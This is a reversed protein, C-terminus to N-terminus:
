NTVRFPFRVFSHFSSLNMMAKNTTVFIRARRHVDARDSVAGCEVCIKRGGNIQEIVLRYATSFNGVSKLGGQSPFVVKVLSRGTEGCVKTHSAIKTKSGTKGTAIRKWADREATVDASALGYSSSWSCPGSAARTCFHHNTQSFDELPFYGAALSCACPSFRGSRLVKEVVKSALKREWCVSKSLEFRASDM